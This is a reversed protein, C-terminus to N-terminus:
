KHRRWTKRKWHILAFGLYIMEAVFVPLTGKKWMIIRSDYAIFNIIKLIM